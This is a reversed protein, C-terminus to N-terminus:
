ARGAVAVGALVEGPEIPAIMVGLEDQKGSVWPRRSAQAERVDAPPLGVDGLFRFKAGCDPCNASFLATYAIGLAATTDHYTVVRGELKVGPHECGGIAAAAKTYDIM